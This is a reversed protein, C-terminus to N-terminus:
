VQCGMTEGKPSPDLTPTGAVWETGAPRGGGPQRWGGRLPSPHYLRVRKARPEM